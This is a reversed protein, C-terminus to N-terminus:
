LVALPGRSESSPGEFKCETEENEDKTLSVSVYVM